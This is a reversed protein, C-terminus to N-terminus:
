LLCLADFEPGNSVEAPEGAFGGGPWRSPGLLVERGIKPDPMLLGDAVRRFRMMEGM